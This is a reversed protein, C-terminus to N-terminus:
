MRELLDLIKDQLREILPLAAGQGGRERKRRELDLATGLLLDFVRQRSRAQKEAAVRAARCRAAALAQKAAKGSLLGARLCREAARAAGAPDLAKIGQAYPKGADARPIFRGSVGRALCIVRPQWAGKHAYKYITRETVGALRAIERVPVVGAEYLGQVQQLLSPANDGGGQGEQERAGNVPLPDPHPAAEERAAIEVYRERADQRLSKERRYSPM